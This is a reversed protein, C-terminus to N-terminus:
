EDGKELEDRYYQKIIYRVKSSISREEEEADRKILEYIEDSVLVGIFPM